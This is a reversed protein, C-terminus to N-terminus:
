LNSEYRFRGAPQIQENKPLREFELKTLIGALETYFENGHQKLQERIILELRLRDTITM